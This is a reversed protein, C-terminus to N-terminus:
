SIFVLVFADVVLYSRSPPFSVQLTHQGNSLGTMGWVVATSVTEVGGDSSTRTYDQLDILTSASSDVAVQAGVAYPWLPAM